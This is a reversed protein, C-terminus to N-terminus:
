LHPDLMSYSYFFFTSCLCPKNLIVTFVYEYINKNDLRFYLLQYFLMNQKLLTVPAM